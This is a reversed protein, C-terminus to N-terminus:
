LGGRLMGRDAAVGVPSLEPLTLRGDRDDVGGERGSKGEMERRPDDCVM